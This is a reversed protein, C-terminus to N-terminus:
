CIILVSVRYKHLQLTQSMFWLAGVAPGFCLVAFVVPELYVMVCFFAAADTLNLFLLYIGTVM